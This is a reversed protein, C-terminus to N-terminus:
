RTNFSGADEDDDDEEDEEEDDDLLEVGSMSEVSAGAGVEVEEERPLLPLLQLPLIIVM